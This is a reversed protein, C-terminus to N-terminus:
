PRQHTVQTAMFVSTQLHCLKDLATQLQIQVATPSLREILQNTDEFWWEVIADFNYGEPQGEQVWDLVLRQGFNWESFDSM